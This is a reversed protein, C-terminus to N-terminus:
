PSCPVTGAQLWKRISLIYPSSFLGRHVDTPVGAEVWKSSFAKSLVRRRIFISDSIWYTIETILLNTKCNSRGYIYKILPLKDSHYIRANKAVMLGEVCNNIEQQLRSSTQTETCRWDAPNTSPAQGSLGKPHGKLVQLFSRTASLIGFSFSQGYKLLM